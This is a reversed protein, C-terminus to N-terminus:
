SWVARFDVRGGDRTVFVRVWLAGGGTKLDYKTSGDPLVESTGQQAGPSDNLWNSITEPDDEFSGIFTRTFMSGETRIEFNRASEPFPALQGWELTTAIMSANDLANIGVNAIASMTMIGFGVLLPILVVQCDSYPKKM